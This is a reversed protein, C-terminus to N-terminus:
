ENRLRAIEKLVKRPEQCPSPFCLQRGRVTKEASLEIGVADANLVFSLSSINKATVRRTGQPYERIVEDTAGDGNADNIDLYYKVPGSWPEGYVAPPIYFSIESNQGAIVIDAARGQRLERLMTFM